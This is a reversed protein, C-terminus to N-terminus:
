QANVMHGTFYISCSTTQAAPDELTILSRISSGAAYMRGHTFSTWYQKPGEQSQLSLQLNRRGLGNAPFM